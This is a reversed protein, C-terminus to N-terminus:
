QGPRPSYVNLVSAVSGKGRDRIEKWAGELPSSPAETKQVRGDCRKEESRCERNLSGRCVQLVLKAWGSKSVRLITWVIM